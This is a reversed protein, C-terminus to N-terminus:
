HSKNKRGEWEKVNTTKRKNTETLRRNKLDKKRNIFMLLGNYDSYMIQGDMQEM